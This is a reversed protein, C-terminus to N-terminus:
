EELHRYKRADSIGGINEVDAYGAKKLAQEAQEARGGSRCYLRIPTEKDPFLKEVQPIIESHGIRIDGDISDIAQEMSTRVDIWVVEALSYTSILLTLFCIISRFIAPIRMGQGKVTGTIRWIEINAIGGTYAPRIPVAVFQDRHLTTLGPSIGAVKSCPHTSYTSHRRKLSQNM